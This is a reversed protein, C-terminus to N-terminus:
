IKKKVSIDTKNEHWGLMKKHLVSLETEKTRIRPM